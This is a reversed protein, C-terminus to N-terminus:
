QRNVDIEKLVTQLTAEDSLFDSMKYIKTVSNTEEQTYESFKKMRRPGQLVACLNNYYPHKDDPYIHLKLELHRRKQRPLMGFVSRRLVSTADIKHAKEYTITKLGGPYGTHYRMVRSKWQDSHMVVNRANTVVVHDGCNSTPAYIPKHKGLIINALMRALRGLIQQDADVHFWMTTYSRIMQSTNRNLAM